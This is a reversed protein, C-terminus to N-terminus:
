FIVSRTEVWGDSYITEKRLFKRTFALSVLSHGDNLHAARFYIYQFNLKISQGPHRLLFCLRVANSQPDYHVWGYRAYNAVEYGKWSFLHALLLLCSGRLFSFVATLKITLIYIYLIMLYVYWYWRSSPALRFVLHTRHPYRPQGLWCGIGLIRRPRHTRSIVDRRLGGVM